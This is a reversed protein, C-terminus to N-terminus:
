LMIYQNFGSILKRKCDVLSKSCLSPQNRIICHQNLFYNLPAHVQDQVNLKYRIENLISSVAAILLRSTEYIKHYVYRSLTTVRRTHKKKRFM